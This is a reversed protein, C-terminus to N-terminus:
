EKVVQNSAVLIQEKNRQNSVFSLLIRYSDLDFYRNVEKISHLEEQKAGSGLYRWQNFKMYQTMKNVPCEEKIIIAGEFPWALTSLSELASLVRQNYSQVDEEQVCAGKCRKLQYSFCASSSHELYCLKPCLQYEKALDLLAKKASVMSRYSGYLSPADVDHPERVTEISLYDQHSSLRFGVITKKRRLKRNFLPMHKKILESELLLASLEGATPIFGVREVQQALAFEKAHSHDSQFHSLVRQRLSVSKGIYLPVQTQESYFLYVGYSDPITALDTKLKSPISSKQYCVKAEELLRQEGHESQAIQLLQYLLFTDTEARHHGKISLGRHLALEKLKYSSLGPYLTKFLKITCLVPVSFQIGLAKFNNKLFGYDFRANHAVFICGDLVASLDFAIEAFSPAHEVLENSIGTLREIMPSIRCPPKILYHVTQEVGLETIILVSIETLHDHKMNLGTTECDVLAWRFHM